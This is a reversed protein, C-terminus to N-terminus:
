LARVKKIECSDCVLNLKVLPNGSIIKICYGTEFEIWEKLEAESFQIPGNRDSLSSENIRLTVEIM